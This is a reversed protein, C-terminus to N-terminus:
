GDSEEIITQLVTVGKVPEVLKVGLVVWYTHM